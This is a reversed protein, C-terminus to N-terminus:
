GCAGCVCQLLARVLCPRGTLMMLMPLGPSHSRLETIPGLGAFKQGAFQGAVRVLRVHDDEGQRAATDRHARLHRLFQIHRQINKHHPLQPQRSVRLQGHAGDGDATGAHYVPIENFPESNGVEDDVRYGRLLLFFEHPPAM